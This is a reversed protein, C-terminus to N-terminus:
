WTITIQGNGSRIGSQTTGNLVGGTYSSGGGGGAGYGSGCIVGGGGGGGYYGGGGGGSYSMDGHCNGADGGIGLSGATAFIGANSFGASGGASQTGGGGGTELSCDQEGNCGASGTLGGGAGGGAGSLNNVLPAGGGGGAVIVRDGLSQGGVRVDSAGGGGGATFGIGGGNWGGMDWRYNGGNGTGLPFGEGQGGVYIYITQGPSVQLDGAAYGGLGGTGNWSSSCNGGQAAWCQINVQTVCAPVTFNQVNGTFSFTQSGPVYNCSSSTVTQTSSASCGNATVSLSVNWNGASSWQVLPNQITSVSPNGGQFSWSYSAGSQIPNFTINQNIVITSPTWSFSASPAPNVILTAVGPSSSCNNITATVQYAGTAAATASPIVPNQLSSSFGNPGTWLYNANPIATAFLKLTDGACVPANSTIAPTQPPICNGCMEKWIGGLYFNFCGSTTNFILLGNAPAAIANRQQETMRPVLLGQSNSSLDLLASSDASAGSHNIATGGQSYVAFTSVATLLTILVLRTMITKM